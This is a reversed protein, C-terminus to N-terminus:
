IKIRKYTQPYYNHYPIHKLRIFYIGSPLFQINLSAKGWGDTKLNEAFVKRGVINFITINIITNEESKLYLLGNALGVDTQIPRLHLQAKLAKEILGINDLPLRGTHRADHHFMPWPTKNPNYPGPLDWIYLSDNKAGVAIEIDGDLDIDALAPSSTIPSGVDIPFGAVTDGNHHFGYLNGDQGGVIIELDEDGDLDALAPSSVVSGTAINIPFGSMTDGTVKFAYIAGYTSQIIGRGTVVELLRDNDIDGLAPSSVIGEYLGNGCRKPWGTLDECNHSLGYLFNDLSGFFIEYDGDNDIDALAPSPDVHHGCIKPWGAVTASDWHWAYVGAQPAIGDNGVIIEINGDYDIDGSAATSHIRGATSKNWLLTGDYRFVLFQNLNNGTGVLIELFGDGDIDELTVSNRIINDGLNIPFNPLLSGDIAWAFLQGSASGYVIEKEGDDDIDGAAPSSTEDYESNLATSKPWNPYLEGRHNWLYVQHAQSAVLVDLTDDGNIDVLVPSSFDVGGSPYQPWGAQYEFAPIPNLFITIILLILSFRVVRLAFRGGLSARLPCIPNTFNIKNRTLM